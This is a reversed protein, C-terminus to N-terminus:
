NPTVSRGSGTALRFGVFTGERGVARSDRYEGRMANRQVDLHFDQEYGFVDIRCYYGGADVSATRTCIM